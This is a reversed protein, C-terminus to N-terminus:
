GWQKKKSQSLKGRFLMLDHQGSGGGGGEECRVMACPCVDLCSCHPTSTTGCSVVRVAGGCWRTWPAPTRLGAVPQSLARGGVQRPIPLPCCRCSAVQDSDRCMVRGLGPQGEPRCCHALQPVTDHAWVVRAWHQEVRRRHVHGEAAYGRDM